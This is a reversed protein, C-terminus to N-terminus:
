PSKEVREPCNLGLDRTPDQRLEIGDLIADNNQKVQLFLFLVLLFHFLQLPWLIEGM